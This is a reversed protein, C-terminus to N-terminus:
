DDDLVLESRSTVGREAFVHSLHNEVTKVSLLLEAAIERNTMGSKALEAVALERPTLLDPRGAKRNAVDARV